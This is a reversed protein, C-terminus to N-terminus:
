LESLTYSWHGTKLDPSFLTDTAWGANLFELTHTGPELVQQCSTSSSVANAVFIPAVTDVVTGNRSRSCVTSNVSIKAQALLAGQDTIKHGFSTHPWLVPAFTTAVLVAKNKVVINVTKTRKQKKTGNPKTVQDGASTWPASQADVIKSGADRVGESSCRVVSGAALEVEVLVGRPRIYSLGHNNKEVNVEIRGKYIDPASSVKNTLRLSFDKFALPSNSTYLYPLKDKIVTKSVSVPQALSNVDVYRASTNLKAGNYFVECLNDRGIDRKVEEFMDIYVSKDQIQSVQKNMQMIASAIASVVVIGVASATLVAIMSTGRDNRLNQACRSM